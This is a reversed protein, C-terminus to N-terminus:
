RVFELDLMELIDTDTTAKARYEEESLGLRDLKRILAESAM